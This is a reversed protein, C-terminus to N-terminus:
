AKAAALAPNASTEAAPGAPRRAYRQALVACAFLQAQHFLMLPLVILGLAQGPFLINAMPIGSAMSKKSGCFVIAIEDEKSFGFRRSAFTTIALVAALLVVDLAIVLGLDGLTVQSWIGAVMGESFAAYVVLLISGRDVISIPAKHRQLFPGIWRRLLQGAIFPMLLQLAISEVARTSFGGGKSDLLLVVLLPTLVM